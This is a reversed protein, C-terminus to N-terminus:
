VNKQLLKTKIDEIMSDIDGAGISLLIDFNKTDIIDILQEKSCLTKNNNIIKELIIGSDVGEIPKERAPYIDLLIIEDLAELSEAFGDAFDKTRSYLHPQFIGCLKKGPYLTRVGNICAKIEEPHHAYDDIYVLSDTQLQIDFRRRVGEYSELAKRVSRDNVGMIKSVLAAGLANEMNYSGPLKWQIDKIADGGSFCMDLNIRGDIITDGSIFASNDTNFGYTFMDIHDSFKKERIKENVVLCGATKMNRTFETFANELKEYTGYIDLHDPDIATILAIDPELALFSRDYEDAEVIFIEADETYVFNSNYNKMIGGIFACVKMGSQHLLHTLLSSVSTKGHTGAVAITFKGATVEGLVQSRKM